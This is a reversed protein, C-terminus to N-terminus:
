LKEDRRQLLKILFAKKEPPVTVILIPSVMKIAAKNTEHDLPAVAFNSPDSQEPYILIPEGPKLNFPAERVREFNVIHGVYARFDSKEEKEENM